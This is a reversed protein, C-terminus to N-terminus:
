EKWIMKDFNFITKYGKNKFYNEVYQTGENSIAMIFDGGWAGLSKCKGAFDSFLRSNVSEIKLLNSMVSEHEAVIQIADITNTCNILSETLSNFDDIPKETQKLTKYYAIAERSNQKQELFVFFTNKTWNSNLVVSKSQTKDNVNYVIPTNATACAIDYGSGGFTKELLQYADVGSWQSLLSILTSSSGLGWNNPFELYTKFSFNKNYFVEANLKEIEKLIIFLREEFENKDDKPFYTNLWLEDNNNYSKWEIQHRNNELTQVELKQGFKTPVALTNAGDLVVYEGTLMLKGHAYYKNM